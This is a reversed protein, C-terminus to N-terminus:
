DNINEQQAATFASIAALAVDRYDQWRFKNGRADGKRDPNEECAVCIARAVAEVVAEPISENMVNEKAFVDDALKNWHKVARQKRRLEELLQAVKKLAM